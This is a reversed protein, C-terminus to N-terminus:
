KKSTIWRSPTSDAEWCGSSSWKPAGKLISRRRRSRMAQTLFLASGLVFVVLTYVLFLSINKGKRRMVSSLTFDLISRHKEIRSAM